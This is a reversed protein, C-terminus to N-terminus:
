QPQFHGSKVLLCVPKFIYRERDLPDLTTEALALTGEPGALRVLDGESLNEPLGAVGPLYLRSGSLVAQVAGNKVTVPPLSSLAEEVTIINKQLKGDASSEMLEELTMSGEIQFSGARTRVLFSMHAGCGLSSGLDACLSRVYTGKSCHLHLLARPSPGGWGTGRIFELSYINVTRAPRDVELGARALQYLKKGKHKLASTMPPVQSIEGTFSPLVSRVTEENLFSADSEGTIEGFSDGSSTSRGFSIEVRYEKDDELLFRALRTATGLCVVLVGAAGPDLTGTHGVKKINLTRRVFNIVDHSSMGPPKLVNILGNM